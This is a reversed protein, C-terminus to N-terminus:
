LVEKDLLRTYDIEAYKTTKGNERDRTAWGRVASRWDVMTTKNKGVKWGKSAYYSVFRVPDIAYGKEEVYARVEEETPPIFKDSKNNSNTQYPITQNPIPKEIESLVAKEETLAGSKKPRGGQKGAASKMASVSKVRDISSLLIPYLIRVTTTAQTLDPEEGSAADLVAMMLEGLDDKSLLRLADIYEPLLVIGDIM